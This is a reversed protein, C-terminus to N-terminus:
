LKIKINDEWRCRPRGLPMKSEYKGWWLGTHIGRRSGVYQEAVDAVVKLDVRRLM